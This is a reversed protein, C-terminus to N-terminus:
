RPPVVSFMMLKGIQEIRVKIVDGKVYGRTSLGTLRPKFTIDKIDFEVVVASSLDAIRADIVDGKKLDKQSIGQNLKTTTTGHANKVVNSSAFQGYGVNTKAGIGVTLLIKKFLLEIKDATIGFLSSHDHLKFSFQYVVKPLVKLFKLPEPNKLPDDHPALYDNAFLKEENGKNNGNISVPIVDYFINKAIDFLELEFNHIM